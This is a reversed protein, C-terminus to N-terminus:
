GSSGCDPPLAGVMALEYSYQGTCVYWPQAAAGAAAEAAPAAAPGMAVECKRQVQALPLRADVHDSRLLQPLPGGAGWM